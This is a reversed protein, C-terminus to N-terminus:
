GLDQMKETDVLVGLRCCTGLYGLKENVLNRKESFCVLGFLCVEGLVAHSRWLTELVVKEAGKPESGPIGVSISPAEPPVRALATSFASWARRLCQRNELFRGIEAKLDNFGGRNAAVHTVRIVLCLGLAKERWHQAHGATGLGRVRVQLGCDGETIHWTQATSASHGQGLTDLTQHGSLLCKPYAVGQALWGQANNRQIRM